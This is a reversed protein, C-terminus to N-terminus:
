NPPSVKRRKKRMRMKAMKTLKASMKLFLDLIEVFGGGVLVSSM